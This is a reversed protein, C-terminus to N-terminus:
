AVIQVGDPHQVVVPHDVGVAALIFSHVAVGGPLGHHGIHLRQTEHFLHLVVGVVHPGAVAAVVVHLGDDGGLPEDLHLGQGPLGHPHDPVALDLEDRLPEGLGVQVPHLVDVVPADGALEPPAVLDRHPVAGVAALHGAGPLVRLDALVAAAGVEGPVRVHQVGPEGGSQPGEGGQAPRLVGGVQIVEIGGVHQDGAIIDDEEPHGPHDEGAALLRFLGGEVRHQDM